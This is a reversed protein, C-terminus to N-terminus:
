PFLALRLYAWNWIDVGFFLQFTQRKGQSLLIDKCGKSFICKELQHNFWGMQFMDTLNFWGGLYTHVYTFM